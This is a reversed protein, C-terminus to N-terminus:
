RAGVFENVAALMAEVGTIPTDPYIGHGLNFIYGPINAVSKLLEQVKAYIIEPRGYLVSPDLNGQLAVKHGFTAGVKAIDVTWDLGIANCGTQIIDPLCRGSNKCFVISPAKIAAVIKEIYPLSFNKFESDGLISAWSDFLMVANCGAAIQQELYAITITTLKDLLLKLTDPEQYLMKKIATFNKSAHGEIMYTAVTFPSGAFGILPHNDLESKILKVATFVYSLDDLCSTPLKKIATLDRVPKTFMPGEGAVFQLGLGMADPITLIDSFLIAADLDFRRLPQLTVECALEPNKCLEMFDRCKSRVARYEPLYRGAQRMIWVPTKDPKKLNLAQLFPSTVTTVETM